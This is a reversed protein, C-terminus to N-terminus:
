KIDKGYNKYLDMFCRWVKQYIRDFISIIPLLFEYNCYKKHIMKSINKIEKYAIDSNLDGFSNGIKRFNVIYYNLLIVRYDSVIILRSILDFDSAIYYELNCFSTLQFLERKWFFTPQFFFLGLSFIYRKRFPLSPINKIFNGEEDITTANGYLCKCNTDQFQRVVKLIVESDYYYDDSNIYTIIEGTAIGFGTNIADYMGNDPESIWKFVKGKAIFKSEYSKIIDVTTDSSGGDIIIYEINTYTQNLISDITDRIYKDSNFSPTIISVITTILKKNTM